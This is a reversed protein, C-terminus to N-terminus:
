YNEALSEHKRAIKEVFITKVHPYKSLVLKRWWQTENHGQVDNKSYVLLVEVKKLQEDVLLICRNGSKKPSIKTGFIAFDLKVIKYTDKYCILDARSYELVNDIHKCINKISELTRGWTTKYKKRFTKIYHSEAFETVAIKYEHM